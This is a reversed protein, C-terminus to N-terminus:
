FDHYIFFPPLFFLFFLFSFFLFLLLPLLGLTLDILCLLLVSCSHSRSRSRSSSSSSSSSCSTCSCSCSSTYRATLLEQLTLYLVSQADRAFLDVRPYIENKLTSVFGKVDYVDNTPDLTKRVIALNAHVKAFDKPPESIYDEPLADHFFGIAELFHNCKEEILALWRQSLSLLLSRLSCL